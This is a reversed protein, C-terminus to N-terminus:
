LTFKGAEIITKNDITLTGNSITAPIGFNSRNKGGLARTDAIIITIAGSAIPNLNFLQGSEAKTNLGLMLGGIRDKDGTANKYLSDLMEFNKAGTFETIRGREFKLTIGEIWRGAQPLPINSVFTGEGHDESVSVSVDGAPISVSYAGNKLDEEDVIGDHLIVKRGALELKLDTGNPATIHVNKGNELLKSVRKGFKGLEAYDEESAKEVASRWRELNLGYTDARQRTITSLAVFATKIKRKLMLDEHPQESEGFASFKEAPIEKFRSPDEVGGMFINSTTYSGLGLCHPSTQRLQEASLTKMYGFYVEDSDLITLVDAGQKYCELAVKNAFDIMHPLTQVTVVDKNNIRLCTEVLTKAIEESM